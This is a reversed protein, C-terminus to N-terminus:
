PKPEKLAVTVPQGVRLSDPREPRAEVLFVLKSREELSYIVPPTYEATRAIFSVRATLDTTCGDCTIQVTQGLAITPLLAENVFFRIKVNGPPLLAVIPRGATVLEGQRFYLQQVTGAVPSKIQRRALKTEAAERRAKAAALAQRAAAIDEERAAMRAVAIQRRVEELQARDRNVNSKATDLNAQTTVGRASLQQQRELEATTLALSAEVRQEQAQLVAIEETRQQAAEQRALRAKAEDVAADAAQVDAKQLDAELAFLPAGAAVTDGERVSLTEVRGAEDPGVFVLDAEVWGQFRTGNNESCGALALTTAVVTAAVMITRLTTM